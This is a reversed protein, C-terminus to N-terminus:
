EEIADHRSLFEFNTVRDEDPGSAMQVKWATSVYDGGDQRLAVAFDLVTQPIGAFRVLAHHGFTM